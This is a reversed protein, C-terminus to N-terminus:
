SSRRRRIGAMMYSVVGSGFFWATVPIPVNSVTGCGAYSGVGLCFDGVDTLVPIKILGANAPSLLLDGSLQWNSADTYDISLQGFEYVVASFSVNNQLYWGGPTGPLALFDWVDQRDALNYHLSYDGYILAGNYRGKYLEIGLMGLSGTATLTDSDVAFDPTTSKVYRNPAQNVPDTASVPTITHVLNVPPMEIRNSNGSYFSSDSRTRYDSAEADFYDVLFHGPDTLTGQTALALVNRDMNMTFTGGLNANLIAAYGKAGLLGSALYVSSLTLLALSKHSRHKKM